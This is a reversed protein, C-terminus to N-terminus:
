NQADEEGLHGGNEGAIIRVILLVTMVVLIYGLM